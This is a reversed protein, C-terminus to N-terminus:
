NESNTKCFTSEVANDLLELVINSLCIEFPPSVSSLPTRGLRFVPPSARANQRGSCRATASARSRRRICPRAAESDIEVRSSLRVCSAEDNRLDHTARFPPTPPLSRELGSHRRRAEGCSTASEVVDTLLSVNNPALRKMESGACHVFAAECHKGESVLGNNWLTMGM